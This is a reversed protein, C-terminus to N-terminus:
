GNGHTWQVRRRAAVLLAAGIVACAYAFVDGTRAYLTSGTQFRVRSVLVAPEFL